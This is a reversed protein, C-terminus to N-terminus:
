GGFDYLGEDLFKSMASKVLDIDERYTVGYWREDTNLVTVDM